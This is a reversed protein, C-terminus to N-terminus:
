GKCRSAIVFSSTFGFLFTAVALPALALFLMRRPGIRDAVFGGLASASVYGVYFATVFAGLAAIPIGLSKGAFLNANAWALRDLFTVLFAAFAVALVVWRYPQAALARARVSAADVAADTSAAAEVSLSM